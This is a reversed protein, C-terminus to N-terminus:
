SAKKCDQPTWQTDCSSTSNDRDLNIFKIEVSDKANIMDSSFEFIKLLGAENGSAVACHLITTNSYRNSKSKTLSPNEQLLYNLISPDKNKSAIFAVEELGEKRAKRAL